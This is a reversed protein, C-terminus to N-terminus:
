KKRAHSNEQNKRYYGKKAEPFRKEVGASDIMTEGHVEDIMAQRFKERDSIDKMM